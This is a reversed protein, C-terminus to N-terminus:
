VDSYIAFTRIKLSFNIITFAMCVCVYFVLLTSGPWIEDNTQNDMVFKKKWKKRMNEKMTKPLFGNTCQHSSTKIRRICTSWKKREKKKFEISNMHNVQSHIPNKKRKALIKWTLVRSACSHLSINLTHISHLKEFLAFQFQCHESYKSQRKTMHFIKHACMTYM